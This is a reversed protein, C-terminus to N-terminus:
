RLVNINCSEIAAITAPMTKSIGSAHPKQRGSLKKKSSRQRRVPKGKDRLAEKVIDAIKKAM